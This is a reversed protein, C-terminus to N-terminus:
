TRPAVRSKLACCPEAPSLSGLLARGTITAATSTPLCLHRAVATVVSETVSARGAQHCRLSAERWDDGRKVQEEVPRAYTWVAARQGDKGASGPRRDDSSRLFFGYISEVLPSVQECTARMRAPLFYVVRARWRIQKTDNYRQGKRRKLPIHIYPSRIMAPADKVSNKNRKEREPVSVASAACGM